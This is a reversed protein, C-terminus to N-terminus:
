QESDMITSGSWDISHGFAQAHESIASKDSRKHCQKHVKFTIELLM